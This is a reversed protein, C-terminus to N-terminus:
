SISKLILFVSREFKSSTQIILREQIRKVTCARQFTLSYPPLQLNITICSFIYQNLFFLYSKNHGFFPTHPLPGEGWTDLLRTFNRPCYELLFVFNLNLYCSDFFLFRNLISQTLLSKLFFTKPLHVQAISDACHMSSRTISAHLYVCHDFKM